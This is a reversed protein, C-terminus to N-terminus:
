WWTFSKESPLEGRDWMQKVAGRAKNAYNRSVIQFLFSHQYILM